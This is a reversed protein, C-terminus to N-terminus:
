APAPVNGPPRMLLHGWPPIPSSHFNMAVGSEDVTLPLHHGDHASWIPAIIAFLRGGPRLARYMKELAAPFKLFHEFAAISFIVDFHGYLANPLEEMAGALVAYSDLEEANRVDGLGKLRDLEHHRASTFKGNELPNRRWNPEEIGIWQKAGIENFVFESPLSGGAELVRKGRLGIKQEAALAYLVHYDLGYRAKLAEVREPSYAASDGDENFTM